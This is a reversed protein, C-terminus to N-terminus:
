RLDIDYLCELGYQNIVAVAQEPRGQLRQDLCYNDPGVFSGSQIVKCGGNVTLLSNFHRHGMICLDPVIKTLETIHRCINDPTDKDGHTGFVKLGQINMIAISEEIDNTFFEINEVNQLYGRLYYIALHDFNEGKMNDDKNQFLRSHNGPTVYVNVKNFILSLQFLFWNLHSCVNIFQKIVDENAEIRLRTHIVGSLIESLVVYADDANHREQITKIKCIYKAFRDRVVEDNYKNWWNDIKIGYHIDYMSILMSTNVDLEKHQYPSFSVDIAKPKYETLIRKVQDSFNEERAKERLLAKYERREDAIKIREKIIENKENKLAQLEESATNNESFVPEARKFDCYLNRCTKGTIYFGEDRYYQNIAEAIDPWDINEDLIGNEKNKGIRWLFKFETEGDRPTLDESIM